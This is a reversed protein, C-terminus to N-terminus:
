CGSHRLASVDTQQKAASVEPCVCVWVCVCVCVCLVCVARVYARVFM